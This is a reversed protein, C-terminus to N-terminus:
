GMTGHLVVGVVWWFVVPAVMGWALPRWGAAAVAYVSVALAVLALARLFGAHTPQLLQAAACALPVWVSPHM